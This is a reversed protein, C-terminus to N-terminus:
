NNFIKIKIILNNKSQYQILLLYNNLLKTFQCKQEIYNKIKILFLM